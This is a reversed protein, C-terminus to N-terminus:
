KRIVDYIDIGLFVVGLIILISGATSYDNKIRTCLNGGFVLKACLLDPDHSNKYYPPLTFIVCGFIVLFCALIIRVIPILKM